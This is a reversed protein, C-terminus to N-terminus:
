ASSVNKGVDPHIKVGILCNKCGRHLIVRSNGIFQRVGIYFSDFFPPSKSMRFNRKRTSKERLPDEIMRERTIMLTIM